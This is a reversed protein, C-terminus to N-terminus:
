LLTIYWLKNNKEKTILGKEEYWRILSYYKQYTIGLERCIDRKNLLVPNGYEVYWSILHTIMNLNNEGIRRNLNSIYNWIKPPIKKKIESYYLGKEIKNM